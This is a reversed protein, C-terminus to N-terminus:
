QLKEGTFIDFVQALKSKTPTVKVEPMEPEAAKPLSLVFTSGKMMGERRADDCEEAQWHHQWIKFLTAIHEMSFSKLAEPHIIHTIDEIFKDRHADNCRFAGTTFEAGGTAEFVKSRM